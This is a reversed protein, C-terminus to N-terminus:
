HPSFEGELLVGNNTKGGGDGGNPEDEVEGDIDYVFIGIDIGKFIGEADGTVTDQM